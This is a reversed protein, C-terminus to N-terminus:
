ALHAECWRRHHQLAHEHRAPGSLRRSIWSLVPRRVVFSLSVHCKSWYLQKDQAKALGIEGCIM